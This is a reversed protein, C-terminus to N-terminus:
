VGGAGGAATARPAPAIAPDTPATANPATANPATANPATANPATANPIMHCCTAAHAPAAQRVDGPVEVATSATVLQPPQPVMSAAPWLFAEGDHAPQGAATAELQAEGPEQRSSAAPAGAPGARMLCFFRADSLAAAHWPQILTSVLVHLNHGNCRPIVKCHHVCGALLARQIAVIILICVVPTLTHMGPLAPTPAPAGALITQARLGRMVLMEQTIVQLAPMIWRHLLHGVCAGASQCCTSEGANGDASAAVTSPM